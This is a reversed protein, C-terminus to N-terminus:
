RSKYYSYMLKRLKIRDNSLRHTHRNTKDLFQM